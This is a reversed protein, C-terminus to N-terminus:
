ILGRNVRNEQFGFLIRAIQSGGQIVIFFQDKVENESNIVGFSSTETDNVDSVIMDKTSVDKILEYQEIEGLRKTAVRKHTRNCKREHSTHSPTRASPNKIEGDDSEEEFHNSKNLTGAQVQQPLDQDM